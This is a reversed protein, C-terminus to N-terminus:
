RPFCVQVDGGAAPPSNMKSWSWNWNMKRIPGSEAESPFFNRAAHMGQLKRHEAQYKEIYVMLLWCNLTWM